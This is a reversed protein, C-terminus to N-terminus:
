MIRSHAACIEGKCSASSDGVFSEISACANQLKQLVVSDIAHSPKDTMHANRSM